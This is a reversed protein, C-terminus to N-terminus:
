LMLNELTYSIIFLAIKLFFGNPVVAHITRLMRAKIMSFSTEIGKRMCQKMYALWPPDKRTKIQSSRQVALHIGDAEFADDESQFDTYASDAYVTSEPPLQLPLKQLAKVDSQAGPTICFEVPIGRLTLVQVKVGYFYRRMASWKGRWGKGKLLKSRAIRINDCAPVPFSDLVYNGAGAIAKLQTGIQFFIVELLSSLRHLRRNFRSESVMAPVLGYDIMHLRAANLHGGYNATALFATTIIEADSVRSRPDEKYRMVKLLDDLFCFLSIIKDRCLM